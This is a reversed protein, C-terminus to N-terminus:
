GAVPHGAPIGRASKRRGDFGTRDVPFDGLSLIRVEQPGAEHDGPTRRGSPERRGGLHKIGWRSLAELTQLFGKAGFDFTHNNALSLYSFGAEKLKGVAASRFRFTYSKRQPADGLSTSSELNGILLNSGRLIGLADGFVRELGGEQLLADDVGRAPMVDGVAEIWAIAPLPAPPLRSFWARLRADSSDLQLTVDQSVAYGPQDPLLDDLPLATDPLSVSCLPQIAVTGREVDARTVSAREDGLRVVPVLPMHAVIKGGGGMSLVASDEFPQSGAPLRIVDTGAPLPSVSVLRQWEPWLDDSSQVALPICPVRLANAALALMIIVIRRM